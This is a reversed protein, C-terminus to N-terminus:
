KQSHCKVKRLHNEATKFAEKVAEEALKQVDLNKMSPSLAIDVEVTLTMPKVGNTEVSINLTEIKKSPVKSLVHKRAAEEVILCLEEIQESKLEPLSLEEM